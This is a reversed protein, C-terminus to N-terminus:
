EYEARGVVDSGGYIMVRGRAVMYVFLWQWCRLQLGRALQRIDAFRLCYALLATHQLGIRRKGALWLWFWGYIGRIGYRWFAEEEMIM